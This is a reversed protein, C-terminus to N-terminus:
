FSIAVIDLLHARRCWTTRVRSYKRIRMRYDGFITRVIILDIFSSTDYNEHIVRIMVRNM